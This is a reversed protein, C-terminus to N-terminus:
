TYSNLFCISYFDLFGSVTVKGDSTDSHLENNDSGGSSEHGNVTLMGNTRSNAQQNANTKLPTKTTSKDLEHKAELKTEKRDIKLITQEKGTEPKCDISAAQVDQNKIEIMMRNVQQQEILQVTLLEEQEQEHKLCNIYHNILLLQNNLNHKQYHQPSLLGALTSSLRPVSVNESFEELLEAAYILQDASGNYLNNSLTEIILDNALNYASTRKRGTKNSSRIRRDAALKTTGNSFALYPLSSSRRIPQYAFPQTTFLQNVLRSSNIFSRDEVLHLENNQNCQDAANIPKKDLKVDKKADRMDTKKGNNKTAPLLDNKLDRADKLKKKKVDTPTSLRHQQDNHAFSDTFATNNIMTNLNRKNLSVESSFTHQVSNLAAKANLKFAESLSRNLIANIRQKVNSKNRHNVSMCPTKHPTTLRASGNMLKGNLQKSCSSSSRVGGKENSLKGDLQPKKDQQNIREKSSAVTPVPPAPRNKSSKKRRKLSNIDVSSSNTTLDGTTNTLNTSSLTETCTTM